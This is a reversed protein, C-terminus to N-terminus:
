FKYGNYQFDGSSDQESDLELEYMADVLLDLDSDSEPGGDPDSHDLEMWSANDNDNDGETWEALDGVKGSNSAGPIPSTATSPGSHVNSDIQSTELPDLEYFTSLTSFSLFRGKNLAYHGWGAPKDLLKFWRVWLFEVCQPQYDKMEPGTFIINAHFIGLVCTYCFPHSQPGDGHALLMINRHNTHPNVAETKCCLDYPTYNIHLLNHWYIQNGMFVISSLKCLGPSPQDGPANLDVMRHLKVAPNDLNSDRQARIPCIHTQRHKISALQPTTEKQHTRPFCGKSTRHELESAQSTYSDTTGYLRIQTAYDGPAHLKYTQLNLVKTHCNGTNSMNTSSNTDRGANQRAQWRRCAEAEHPLERTSFTVCTVGVFTRLENGLSCTVMELVNLTEDTHMQLKALGHWHALLFLLKLVQSNHQVLLLGAFVPMACQKAHFCKVERKHQDLEPLGCGKLSDLMRLLHIFIAKWVGLEFEHLLNMVLMVFFDFGAHSLRQADAAKKHREKTDQCALAHHQLLDRESALNYLHDKLSLCMRHEYAQVFDDDLLEQWQAHFLEHHCHMFFTDGPLKSGSYELAFDKFDDPLTQPYMAHACLHSSPQCREYKSIFKANGFSTLQTADSWFMLAIIWQPLDCEPEAPLEQLKHHAKLFASSTFLEGYVRVNHPKHPPHSISITTCEWGTDKDLWEEMDMTGLNGLERDVALWNTNRIHEPHFDADGIISLLNKFSSKSHSSQNWYWDGLLMSSENLYPHFPCDVHSSQDMLKAQLGIPQLPNHTPKNLMPDHHPLTETDYLRFLGFSNVQTTQSAEGESQVAGIDGVNDGGNPLDADEHSLSHARPTDDLCPKMNQYLEKAKAKKCTRGHKMFAGLDSFSCWCQVCEQSFAQNFMCLLSIYYMHVLFLFKMVLCNTSIQAILTM